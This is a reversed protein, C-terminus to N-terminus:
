RRRSLERYLAEPTVGLDAAITSWRGKPPLMGDNLALWGDLRDALRRLSLLESRLRAAQAERALHRALVGMALPDAELARCVVAVPASRILSPTLAVGDCHYREAFISPEALVDGARARQLILRHGRDTVRELAAEGREVLFVSFVPDGVRFLLGGADIWREAGAIPRLVM